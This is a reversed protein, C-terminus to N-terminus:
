GGLRISVAYRYRVPVGNKTAPKFSWNMAQKLLAADYPSICATSCGCPSSKGM